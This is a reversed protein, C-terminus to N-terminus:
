RSGGRTTCSASRPTEGPERPRRRRRDRGRQLSFAAAAAATDIRGTGDTEAFFGPLIQEIAIASTILGVLTVSVLALVLRREAPQRARAPRPDSAPGTPRPCCYASALVLAGRRSGRRITSWRPRPLPSWSATAHATWAGGGPLRGCRARRAGLVGCRAAGSVDGAPLEVRGAAGQLLRPAVM